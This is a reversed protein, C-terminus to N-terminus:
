SRPCTSTGTAAYRSTAPRPNDVGYPRIRLVARGTSEVFVDDLDDFDVITYGYEIYHEFNKM